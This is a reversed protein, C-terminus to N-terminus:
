GKQKDTSDFMKKLHCWNVIVDVDSVDLGEGMLM